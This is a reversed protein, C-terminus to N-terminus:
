GDRSRVVAFGFCSESTPDITRGGGANFDTQM